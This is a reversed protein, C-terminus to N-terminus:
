CFVYDAPVFCYGVIRPQADLNYVHIGFSEQAIHPKNLGDFKAAIIVGRPSSISRAECAYRLSLSSNRAFSVSQLNGSIRFGNSLISALNTEATGHFFIHDDNEMADPFLRYGNEEGAGPFEYQKAAENDCMLIGKGSIFSCLSQTYLGAYYASAAHWSERLGETPEYVQRSESFV